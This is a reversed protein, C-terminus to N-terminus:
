RTPFLGYLSIIYNLAISPMMNEHPGGGGAYSISDANVHTKTLGTTANPLYGRPTQGGTVIGLYTTSGPVNTAGSTANSVTFNHSHAPMQSEILTVSEAGGKQGIALPILGAGAGFSVAMRGRLDPVAFTTVGDGGYRTGILAFLAQFQGIPLLSGDCLAWDVPAYNGSFLRIEGIYHDFM